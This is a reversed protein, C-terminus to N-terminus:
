EALNRSEVRCRDGSCGRPQRLRQIRSTVNTSLPLVRVHLGDAVTRVSESSIGEVVFSGREFPQDAAELPDLSWSVEYGTSLLRGILRVGDTTNPVAYVPSTRRRPVFVFPAPPESVPRLPANALVEQQQTPLTEYTAVAVGLAPPMALVKSSRVSLLSRAVPGESQALPVVFAPYPKQTEYVKVDHQLLTSVLQAVAGPERQFLPIVFAALSQRAERIAEQRNVYITHGIAEADNAVAKLFAFGASIKQQLRDEWTQTGLTRASETILAPIGHISMVQVVNGDFIYRAGEEGSDRAKTWAFLDRPYSEYGRQQWAHAIAKGLSTVVQKINDPAEKVTSLGTAPAWCVEPVQVGLIFVDEHTDLLALPHWERFVRLVAASEPQTLHLFDRNLLFGFLNGASGDASRPYQQWTELALTRGDPNLMPMVLVILKGLIALTDNDTSWALREILELQAELHAAEHGFSLGTILVPFRIQKGRDQPADVKANSLTVFRTAPALADSAEEKHHHLLGVADESAIVICYVGRGGNSQGVREITVRPSLKLAELRDLFRDYSLLASAPPQTSEASVKMTM